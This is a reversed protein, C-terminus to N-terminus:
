GVGEVTCISGLIRGNVDNIGVGVIWGVGSFGAGVVVGGGVEGKGFKRDGSGCGGVGVKGEGFSVEESGCRDCSCM